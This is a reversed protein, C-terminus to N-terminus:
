GVLLHIDVVLYRSSFLTQRLQGFCFLHKFLTSLRPIFCFFCFVVLFYALPFRLRGLFALFWASSWGLWRCGSRSVFVLVVKSVWLRGNHFIWVVLSKVLMVIDLHSHLLLAQQNNGRGERIIGGVALLGQGRNVGNGGGQACWLRRGQIGTVPALGVDITQFSATNVGVNL